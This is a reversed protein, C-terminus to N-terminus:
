EYSGLTVRIRMVRVSEPGEKMLASDCGLFVFWLLGMIQLIQVTYAIGVDTSTRGPVSACEALFLLLLPSHYQVGFDSFESRLCNTNHALSNPFCYPERLKPLLLLFILKMPAPLILSCPQPSSLVIIALQCPATRPCEDCCRCAAQICSQLGGRLQLNPLWQALPESLPPLSLIISLRLLDLLASIFQLPFDNLVMM